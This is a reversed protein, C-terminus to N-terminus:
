TMKRIRVRNKKRSDGKLGDLKIEDERIMVRALNLHSRKHLSSCKQDSKTKMYRVKLIKYRCSWRLVTESISTRKPTSLKESRM